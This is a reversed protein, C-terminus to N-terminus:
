IIKKIFHFHGDIVKGNHGDIVLHVLSRGVADETDWHEVHQKM